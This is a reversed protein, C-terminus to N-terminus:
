ATTLQAPGVGAAADAAAGTAPAAAAGVAPVTIAVPAAAAGGAELVAREQKVKLLKLSMTEYQLEKEVRLFKVEFEDNALSSTDSTTSTADSGGSLRRRREDLM